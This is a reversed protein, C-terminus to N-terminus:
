ATAAGVLYGPLRVTTPAAPASDLQKHGRQAHAVLTYTHSQGTTVAADDYATAGAALSTVEAGDRLLVLSRDTTGAPFTFGDWTVHVSQTAVAATLGTPAALAPPDAHAAYSVAGAVLSAASLLAVLPRRPMGLLEDAPYEAGAAGAIGYGSEMGSAGVVRSASRAGAVRTEVM